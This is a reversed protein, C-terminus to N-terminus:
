YILSNAFACLSEFTTSVCVSNFLSTDRIFISSPLKAKNIGNFVPSYATKSRLVGSSAPQVKPDYNEVVFIFFILLGTSTLSSTSFCGGFSFCIKFLKPTITTPYTV